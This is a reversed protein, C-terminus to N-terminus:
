VRFIIKGINWLMVKIQRELWKIYTSYPVPKGFDLELNSELLKYIGLLEKIVIGFCWGDM